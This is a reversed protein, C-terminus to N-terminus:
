EHSKIITGYPTLDSHHGKDDTDATSHRFDKDDDYRPDDRWFGGQKWARGYSTHVEKVPSAYSSGLSWDFSAAEQCTRNLLREILKIQSDAEVVEDCYRSRLWGLPCADEPILGSLGALIVALTGTRGHGGFCCILVPGKITALHDALTHYWPSLMDPVDGDPWDITLEPTACPARLLEAPVSARALPNAVIDYGRYLNDGTLNIVLSWGKHRTIPHQYFDAKTGLYIECEGVMFASRLGVHCDVHSYPSVSKVKTAKKVVKAVAAKAARKFKGKKRKSM